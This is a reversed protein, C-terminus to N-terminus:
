CILTGKAKQEYYDEIESKISDYEDLELHSPSITIKEELYALRQSLSNIRERQRKGKKIAFSISETRIRCKVYDWAMQKDNLNAIDEKADQITGKILKIYDKDHLLSTNLKWLGRGRKQNNELVLTLELLSHDSKLGPLIDAKEIVYVIPSTILFYDIRSQALGFRTNERRTFKCVGPNKLKWIDVLDFTDILQLLYTNYSHNQNANTSELVDLNINLDGGIIINHGFYKEMMNYLVHGFNAQDTVKDITPAYINVLTYNIENLNCELVLCRGEEDHVISNIIVDTEPAILIAVGRSNSKGHSFFIEGGWQEKWATEFEHSSHTEQIFFIDGKKSKLWEFIAIRKIKNGLGRANFCFITIDKNM